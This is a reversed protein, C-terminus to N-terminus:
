WASECPTRDIAKGSSPVPAIRKGRSTQRSVVNWKRARVSSRPRVETRSVRMTRNSSPRQSTAASRGAATKDHPLNTVQRKGRQLNGRRRPALLCPEEPALLGIQLDAGS